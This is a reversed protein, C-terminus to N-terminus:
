QADTPPPLTNSDAYEMDRLCAVFQSVLPNPSDDMWFVGKGIPPLGDLPILEISPDVTLTHSENAMTAALGASVMPAISALDYEIEYDDFLPSLNRGLAPHQERPFGDMRPVLMPHASLFQRIAEEPPKNFRYLQERMAAFCMREQAYIFRQCEAFMEDTASVGVAIDIAGSKLSSMLEMLNLQHITITINHSQRFWQLARSIHRDMSQDLMLGISLTGAEGSGMESVQNILADLRDLIPSLHQFLHRGAATLQITSRTRDFLPTGLEDELNAMQRSVAPQSIYRERAAQTFSMSRCVSIFTHLQSTTM